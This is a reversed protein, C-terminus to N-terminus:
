IGEVGSIGRGVFVCENLRKGFIGGSLFEVKNYNNIYLQIDLFLLV